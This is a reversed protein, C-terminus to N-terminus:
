ALHGILGPSGGIETDRPKPNCVTHAQRAKKFRLVSTLDHKCLLSSISQATAGAGVTTNVPFMVM